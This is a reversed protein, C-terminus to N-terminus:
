PVGWGSDFYIKAVSSVCCDGGQRAEVVQSNAEHWVEVPCCVYLDHACM